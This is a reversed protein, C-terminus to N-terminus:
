RKILTNESKWKLFEIYHSNNHSDSNDIGRAIVALSDRTNSTILGEKPLGLDNWNKLMKRNKVNGFFTWHSTYRIVRCFISSELRYKRCWSHNPKRTINRQESFTYIFPQLNESGNKVRNKKVKRIKKISIKNSETIDKSWLFIILNREDSNVPWKSPKLNKKKKKM